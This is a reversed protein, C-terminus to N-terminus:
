VYKNALYIFEQEKEEQPMLHTTQHDGVGLTVNLANLFVPLGYKQYLRHYLDCDLGWSLQEDFFELAEKRLAIVSPSGITNNGKIVDPNWHPLHPSLFHSEGNDHLCGSALWKRETIEFADVIQQLSDEHTFYDDLYLIKIIDGTARRMAANSNEAMKGDYTFILEYNPYSQINVSSILREKFFDHNKMGLHAPVCISVKPMEPM